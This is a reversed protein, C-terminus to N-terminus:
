QNDYKWPILIKNNHIDLMGLKEKEYYYLFKKTDIVKQRILECHPIIVELKPMTADFSNMELKLTEQSFLVWQELNYKWQNYTDVDDFMSKGYEITFTLENKWLALYEAYIEIEPRHANSLETKLWKDYANSNITEQFIRYFELQLSNNTNNSTTEDTDVDIDTNTDYINQYTNTIKDNIIENERTNKDSKEDNKNCSVITTLMACCLLILIVKKM